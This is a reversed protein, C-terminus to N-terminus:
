MLMKWGARFFLYDGKRKHSERRIVGDMWQGDGRWWGTM